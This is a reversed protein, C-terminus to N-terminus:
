ILIQLANIMLRSSVANKMLNLLKLKSNILSILLLLIMSLMHGNEGIGMCVIDIINNNLLREYRMCEKTVDLAASDLYNVTKFNVKSFIAEKLFNGFAQPANKDIGLYEDMHYANIKEWEIEKFSILTQLFDSQSPAAAFIINIEDKLSLAKKIAQCVDNAAQRGLERRTDFICVELNDKRFNKVLM